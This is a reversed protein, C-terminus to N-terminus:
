SQTTTWAKYAIPGVVVAKNAIPGVMVAKHAM